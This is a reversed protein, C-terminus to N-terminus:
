LVLATLAYYRLAEKHDITSYAYQKQVYEFIMMIFIMQSMVTNSQPPKNGKCPPKLARNPFDSSLGNYAESIVKTIAAMAIANYKGKEFSDKEQVAKLDADRVEISPPPKVPTMKIVPVM